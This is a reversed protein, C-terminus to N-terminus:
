GYAAHDGEHRLGGEKSLGPWGQGVLQTV